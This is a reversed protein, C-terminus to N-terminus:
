NILEETGLTDEWNLWVQTKNDFTHQQLQMEYEKYLWIHQSIYINCLINLYKMSSKKWIRLTSEM